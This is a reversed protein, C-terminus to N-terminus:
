IESEQCQLISTEVSMKLITLDARNKNRSFDKRSGDVRRSWRLQRGGPRSYLHHQAM